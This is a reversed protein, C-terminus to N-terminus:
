VFLIEDTPEFDLPKDGPMIWVTRAGTESLASLAAATEKSYYPSILWYELEINAQATLHNITEAFPTIDTAYMNIYALSELIRRLHVAGKGETIHTSAGSRISRGNTYFSLPVGQMNMREAMSAIIKIAREEIGENHWIIHREADLLLVIQRANSFDWVNVMLEQAKASAKFNISKM